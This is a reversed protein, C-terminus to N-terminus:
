PRIIEIGVEGVQKELVKGAVGSLSYSLRSLLPARHGRGEACTHM